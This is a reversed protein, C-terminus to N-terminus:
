WAHYKSLICVISHHPAEQLLTQSSPLSHRVIQHHLLTNPKKADKEGNLSQSWFIFRVRKGPWSINKDIRIQSWHTKTHKENPSTQNHKGSQRNKHTQKRRTKEPAISICSQFHLVRFLRVLNCPPLHRVFDGLNFQLVSWTIRLIVHM